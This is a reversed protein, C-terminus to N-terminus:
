RRFGSVALTVIQRGQHHRSTPVRSQWGLPALRGLTKAPMAGALGVVVAIVVIGVIM